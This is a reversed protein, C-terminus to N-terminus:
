QRFIWAATEEMDRAEQMNALNSDQLVSRTPRDEINRVELMHAQNSDQRTERVPCHENVGADRTPVRDLSQGNM